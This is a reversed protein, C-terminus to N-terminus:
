LKQDALLLVDEYYLSSTHAHRMLGKELHKQNM